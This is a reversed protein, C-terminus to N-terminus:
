TLRDLEAWNDGASVDAVCVIGKTEKPSVVSEMIKKIEPAVKKVLGEEIEFVLEDHVQLLMRVKEELKGSSLHKDIRVMALKIIDAETGQIPANSAQREASARVYPLKSKFGEFYRRRGFFTQTYGKERAEKKVRELYEALVSFRAFYDDYFKQAEARDTGLQKQLATVGMGYIMGFNIAKARRRMEYDVKETPLGFVESAVATHVDLGKRFIEVLKGDGSLFAAIRLEIQSYDFAVLKFGKAALFAKRIEMGMDSKHPINQINPDRSSLRGTAAGNQLFHTHLRSDAAILTPITDIYTSLLKQLERYSLVGAIIPHADRLKELESERTSLAGTGTKKQRLAKLGMKQFLIEGLQKPSNVNFEVGAKRWIEKELASLKKHYEVSLKVLHARDILVGRQEMKSLVPVLPREIEEFVRTLGNQSVEKIINKKADDFSSAHGVRLIDELEPDSISSNLLSVAVLIEKEEGSTPVPADSGKKKDELVWVSTKDNTEAGRLKELADKARIGLTRFELENFFALIESLEVSEVWRGAPLSFAIPADRRITALEKSFLAEEEHELLIKVIREKIGAKTFAEPEKKLKKYIDEISGFQTVLSTATKDGIGPVGPINDSQDGNLGKYDPLLKPSFGFREKVKEEDYLITDSIGKKLTYVQVRKDDVLQMTDMDGSAIVIDVHLTYSTVQLKQVITGLIDDAEFGPCDYIPINFAKFVDRSRKIQMVLSDDAKQRTAKYGEFAQHRYTPQPLDYCAIIFDPKLDTIIKLLMASLGYIGGTPEGKSSIFDPLAHYARHLIAHADLLVVKQKTEAKPM